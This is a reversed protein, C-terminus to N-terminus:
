KARVWRQTRGILQIGVYGRVDLEPAGEVLRIVCRYSQGNEPDLITGGTWEDGDRSLDELITMGVIPTNRREGDCETCLPNPDETPGSVLRIIKGSLKGGEEWIRVVSKM